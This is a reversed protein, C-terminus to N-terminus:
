GQAATKARREATSSPRADNGQLGYEEKVLELFNLEASILSRRRQLLLRRSRNEGDREVRMLDRELIKRTMLLGQEWNGVIADAREHKVDEFFILRGAFEREEAITPDPIDRLWHDFAHIGRATIEYSIRGLDDNAGPPLDSSTRVLGEEKLRRLERYANGSRVRSGTRQNYEKILAYGHVAEGHHLLGLLHYRFMRADGNKEPPEWYDIRSPNFDIHADLM